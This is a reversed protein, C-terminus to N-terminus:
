KKGSNEVVKILDRVTKQSDFAMFGTREDGELPSTGRIPDLVYYTRAGKDNHVVVAFWHGREGQGIRAVIFLHTAIKKPDRLNRLTANLKKENAEELLYYALDSINGIVSANQAVDKGLQNLLGNLAEEDAWQISKINKLYPAKSVADRAARDNKISNNFARMFHVGHAVSHPGCFANPDELQGGWQHPVDVLVTKSAHAIKLEEQRPKSKQMVAQRQYEQFMSVLFDQPLGKNEPNEALWKKFEASIVIDAASV